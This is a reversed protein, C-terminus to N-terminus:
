KKKNRGWSVFGIECTREGAIELSMKISVKGNM